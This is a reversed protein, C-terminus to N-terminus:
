EIDFDEKLKEVENNNYKRHLEDEKAKAKIGEYLLSMEIVWDGNKFTNFHGMSIEQGYWELEKEITVLFNILIEENFNLLSLHEWTEDSDPVPSLGDDELVLTYNKKFHFKIITKKQIEEVNINTIKDKYLDLETIHTYRLSKYIEYLKEQIKIDKAFKKQEEFTYLWFKHLCINHHYTFYIIYM